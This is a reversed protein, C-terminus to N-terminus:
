RIRKFELEKNHKAIDRKMWQAVKGGVLDGHRLCFAHPSDTCHYSELGEAIGLLETRHLESVWHDGNAWYASCRTAYQQWFKRDPSVISTMETRALTLATFVVNYRLVEKTTIGVAEDPLQTIWKVISALVVTPLCNSLLWVFNAILTVIGPVQLMKTMLQGRPSEAIDNITPTLLYVRHIAEPRAALAQIAFYAGVSHGALYIPIKADREDQSLGLLIGDLRDILDGFQAELNIAESPRCSDTANFGLFNSSIIDLGPVNKQLTDFFLKYYSTIGPNGPIFM